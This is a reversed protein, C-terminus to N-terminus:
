RGGDDEEDDELEPHSTPNSLSKGHPVILLFGAFIGSVEVVLCNFDAAIPAYKKMIILTVTLNM